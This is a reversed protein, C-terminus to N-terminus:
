KGDSLRRLFEIEEDTITGDILKQGLIELKDDAIGQSANRETDIERRLRNNGAIESLEGLSPADAGGLAKDRLVDFSEVSDVQIPLGEQVGQGMNGLTRPGEPRQPNQPQETPKGEINM